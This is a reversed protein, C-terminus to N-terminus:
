KHFQSKGDDVLGAAEEKANQELSKLIEDPIPPPTPLHHGQPRYGGEDATYTVSYTKGDDGKYSYGGQAQVGNAAVGNEGVSIGNDTQFEYSYNELGVDNAFKLTNAKTKDDNYEDPKILSKFGPTLGNPGRSNGSDFFAADGVKSDTSGYSTRPGGLGTSEAGSTRTGPNVADVVVGQADNTYSGTPLGGLGQNPGDFPAKM